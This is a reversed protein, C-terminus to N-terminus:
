VGCRAAPLTPGPIEASEKSIKKASGDLRTSHSWKGIPQAVSRPLVHQRSSALYHLGLSGDRKVINFEGHGWVQTSFALVSIATFTSMMSLDM